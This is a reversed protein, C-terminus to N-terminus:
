AHFQKLISPVYSHLIKKKKKTSFYNKSFFLSIPITGRLTKHKEIKFHGSDELFVFIGKYCYYIIVMHLFDDFEVM